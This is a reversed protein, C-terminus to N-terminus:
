TTFVLFWHMMGNVEIRSAVYEPNKKLFFSHTELLAVIM